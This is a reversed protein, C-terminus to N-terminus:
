PASEIETRSIFSELKARVSIPQDCEFTEPHRLSFVLARERFPQLHKETNGIRFQDSLERALVTEFYGSVIRLRLSMSRETEPFM